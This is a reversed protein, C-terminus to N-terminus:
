KLSGRSAEDSGAVGSGERPKRTRLRRRLAFRRYGISTLLILNMGVINLILYLELENAVSCIMLLFLETGFGLLGSLRLGAVDGYWENRLAEGREGGKCWTDILLMFRDQWGYILIFIQQLRLTSPDAQRDVETVDELLRNIKYQGHLHLFSTHYFVHFSVRLTIGALGVLSLLMMMWDGTQQFLTLGIASFVAVNVVVDGISDLFRGKRSFQSRARALQGDASDLIDKVTILIGAVVVSAQSGAYYFGAAVLGALISALTVQNPTISTPYLARVIMGAIPRLVYTNILEDSSRSKLSTNYNYTM